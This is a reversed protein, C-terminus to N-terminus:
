QDGGLVQGLALEVSKLAPHEGWPKQRRKALGEEHVELSLETQSCNLILHGATIPALGFYGTVLRPAYKFLAFRLVEIQAPIRDPIHRLGITAPFDGSRLEQLTHIVERASSKKYESIFSISFSPDTENDVDDQDKIFKGAVFLVEGNAPGRLNVLEHLKQLELLYPSKLFREALQNLENATFQAKCHFSSSFGWPFLTRQSEFHQDILKM